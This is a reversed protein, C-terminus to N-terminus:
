GATWLSEAPLATDGASISAFLLDLATLVFDEGARWDPIMNNIPGTSAALATLGNGWCKVSGDPRIGCTHAYGASIATFQGEPPTSQGAFDAGWCVASGSFLLACTHLGGASVATFHGKPSQAQGLYDGREERNYSGYIYSYNDGWCEVSTDQRLGCAHRIGVSISVFDKGPPTVESVRVREESPTIGGDLGRDWCQVGGDLRLGCYAEKGISVAAFNEGIIEGNSRYWGGWCVLANDTPITCGFYDHVSVSLSTGEPPTNLSLWRPARNSIGWCEVTADPRLGCSYFGGSSLETFTGDPVESSRVYRGVCQVTKDLKLACVHALGAAIALYSDQLQDFNKKQVM